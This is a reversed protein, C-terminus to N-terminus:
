CHVKTLRFNLIARFLVVGWATTSPKLSILLSILSPKREFSEPRKLQLSVAGLARTSTSSTAEWLLTREQYQISSMFKETSKYPASPDLDQDDTLWAM